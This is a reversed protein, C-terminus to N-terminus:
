AKISELQWGTVVIKVFQILLVVDYILYLGLTNHDTHFFMWTDKLDWFADEFEYLHLKTFLLFLLNFTLLQFDVVSVSFFTHLINLTLLLFM